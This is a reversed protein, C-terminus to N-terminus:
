VTWSTSVPAGLQAGSIAMADARDRSRRRMRLWSNRAQQTAADTTSDGGPPATGAGAAQAAADTRGLDDGPRDGFTHAADIRFIRRTELRHFALARDLRQWLDRNKIPVLEGYCEWMWGSRRWEDLGEGLVRRVSRAGQALTVISPQDLSEMARVVSLLELREGRVNPEEDHAELTASGDAATLVFRWEGRDDKERVESRLFFHPKPSNM